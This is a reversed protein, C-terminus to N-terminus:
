RLQQGCCLSNRVRNAMQEVRETAKALKAKAQVNPGNLGRLSPSVLTPRYARVEEVVRQAALEAERAEAEEEAAASVAADAAGAREAAQAVEARM